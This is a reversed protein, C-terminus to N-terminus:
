RMGPTRIMALSIAIIWIMPVFFGLVVYIAGPALPGSRFFPALTGIGDVAVAVFGLSSLWIPLAHHRRVSLSAAGVFIAFPAFFYSALINLVDFGGRMFDSGGTPIGHYILACQIGSFVFYMTAAAIAGAFGWSLLAEDPETATRLFTNLGAAFWLFFAVAPLALWTSLMWMTRHGNLFAAIESGPATSDPPIGPLVAGGVAVVVFAIGSYGTSRQIHQNQMM